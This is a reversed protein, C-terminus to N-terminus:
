PGAPAPALAKATVDQFDYPRQWFSYFSRPPLMPLNTGFYRNLVVRFSNVPTIDASLAEAGGDPLHYANLISFREHVMEATLNKPATFGFRSSSGHDGQVIIIPATKSRRLIEDIVPLIRANLFAVHGRYGAIYDEHSVGAMGIFNTIRYPGPPQIPQGEPGFVFPAHPCMIHAFVFVPEPLDCTRPLLEMAQLIRRRHLDYQRDTSLQVVVHPISTANLLGLEFENLLGQPGWYYDADPIETVHYGTSFTVSRYGRAKLFRWVESDKIMRRLPELRRYSTGIQRSVDDLYQMNLASSLSTATQGYNSVASSAVYFGRDTLTQLFSSNDVGFTERLVDSRPYGDLIIFYINPRSAPRTAPASTQAAVAPDLKLVKDLNGLCVVVIRVAVAAVMCAAVLNIIRTPRRLDGRAKWLLAGVGLLIAASLGFAAKKTPFFGERPIPINLRLFFEELPTFAFLLMISLSVLVAAKAPSKLTKGLLLSAALATPVLVALPRLVVWLPFEGTNQSYLFLVPWVAFLMPHILSAKKM